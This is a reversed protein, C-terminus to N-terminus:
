EVQGRVEGDPYQTTHVNVYIENNKLRNLEETTLDTWTGQAVNGSFIIPEVVPGNVGRAAHHFHAAQIPTSLDEVTIRYTLDNGELHFTGRGDGDTTRPPNEQGGTLTARFRMDDHDLFPFCNGFMHFPFGARNFRANMGAEIKNQNKYSSSGQVSASGYSAAIATGATLLAMTGAGLAFTRITHYTM